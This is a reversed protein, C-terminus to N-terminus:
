PPEVGGAGLVDVGVAPGRDERGVCDLLSELLPMQLVCQARVPRLPARREALVEAPRLLVESKQEREDVPVLDHGASQGLADKEAFADDSLNTTRYSVSKCAEPDHRSRFLTLTSLIPLRNRRKQACRPRFYNRTRTLRIRSTM